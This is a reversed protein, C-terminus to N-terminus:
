RQQEVPAARVAARPRAEVAVVTRPAAVHGAVVEPAVGAGFRVQAIEVAIPSRLEDRAVVAEALDEGGVGARHGRDLDPGVAAAAEAVDRAAMWRLDAPVCPAEPPQVALVPRAVFRAADERRPDGILVQEPAGGGGVLRELVRSQATLQLGAGELRRAVRAGVDTRHLRLQASGAVASSRRNWAM